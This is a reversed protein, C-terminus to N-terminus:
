TTDRWYKGGAGGPAEGTSTVSAARLVAMATARSLGSSMTTLLLTYRFKPRSLRFHLAPPEAQPSPLYWSV